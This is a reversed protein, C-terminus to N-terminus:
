AFPETVAANSLLTKRESRGYLPFEERIEHNKGIKPVESFSYVNKKSSWGIARYAKRTSPANM